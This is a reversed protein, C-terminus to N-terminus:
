LLYKNGAQLLKLLVNHNQYLAAEEKCAVM